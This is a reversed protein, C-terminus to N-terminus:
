NTKIINLYHVIHQVLYDIDRNEKIVISMDLHDNEEFQKGTKFRAISLARIYEVPFSYSMSLDILLDFQTNIFDEVFSPTPKKYWNLDELSFFRLSKRLLYNDPVKKEPVYGIAYVEKGQDTCQKVFNHVAEFMQSNDCHFIIGASKAYKFNCVKRKRRLRKQKKRLVFRGAKKRIKGPICV